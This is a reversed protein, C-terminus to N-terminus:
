ASVQHDPVDCCPLTHPHAWTGMGTWVGVCVCVGTQESCGNESWLFLGLAAGGCAQQSSPIITSQGSHQICKNGHHSKMHLVFRSWACCQGPAQGPCRGRCHRSPNASFTKVPGARHAPRAFSPQRSNTCFAICDNILSM